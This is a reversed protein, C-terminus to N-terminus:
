EKNRLAQYSGPCIREDGKGSALREGQLVGERVSTRVSSAMYMVVSGVCQMEMQETQADTRLHARSSSAM